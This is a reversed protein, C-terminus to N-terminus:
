SQETVGVYVDGIFTVERYFRRRFLIQIIRSRCWWKNMANSGRYCTLQQPEFLRYMYVYLHVPNSPNDQDYDDNNVIDTM